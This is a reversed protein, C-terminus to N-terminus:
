STMGQLKSDRAQIIALDRGRIVGTVKVERDGAGTNNKMFSNLRDLPFVVEPGAEGILGLTPGTVIGGTAFAHYSNSSSKLLAGLAEAGFGLAIAVVGPIAIGASFITDLGTKVTGYEILAKGLRELVDGIASELAHGAAQIPNAGKGIATGVAEGISEFSKGALSSLSKQIEQNLKALAESQFVLNPDVKIDTKLPPLRKMYDTLQKGSDERFKQVEKDDIDAREFAYHSHLEPNLTNQLKANLATILDRYANALASGASANKLETEAEAIQARITKVLPSEQGSPLDQGSAERLKFLPEKSPKSLDDYIRQVEQLIPVVNKLEDTPPPPIKLPKQQLQVDINQRLATTYQNIQDKLTAVAENQKLYKIKLEDLVDQAALVETSGGGGAGFNDRNAVTLKTVEEQQKEYAQSLQALVPLQKSLEVSTKAIEETFGKTIAETILAQSYENVRQTLTALSGAELSLDGFYAKNTERLQDLANKREAYSKNTDRVADALAQVQAIQGASSGNGTESIDSVTKLNLLTDHLQKAQEEAKKEADTQRNLIEYLGYLAAAGITVAPGLLTFNSALARLSFGQGTVVRGLDIFAVRAQTTSLNLSALGSGAANAAPQIDKLRSGFEDFGETGAKKLASAQTSLDRIARNLTGLEATNGTEAQAQRLSQLAQNVATLNGVGEVALEGTADTLDTLHLIADRVDASITIQLGAQDM